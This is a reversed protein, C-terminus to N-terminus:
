VKICYASVLLHQHSYDQLIGHLVLYDDLLSALEGSQMDVNVRWVMNEIFELVGTERLDCYLRFALADIDEPSTIRHKESVLAFHIDYEDIALDSM